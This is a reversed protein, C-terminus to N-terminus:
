DGMKPGKSQTSQFTAARKNSYGYPMFGFSLVGCKDYGSNTREMKFFGNEGWDPGWSNKLLWYRKNTEADYGEGVLLVAHNLNQSDCEGNYIGGSYFVLDENVSIYVVTPARVLLKEAVDFGNATVFSRIYHREGSHVKCEVDIGEYPWNESASIGNNVIYQLALDSFGGNCGESGSECSVLEQESLIHLTSAEQLITSEVAAVAAFAWCSGCQKQDKVPTVVGARRWDIDEFNARDNLNLKALNNGYGKLMSYEVSTADALSMDSLKIVNNVIEHKANIPHLLKSTVDKIDMDSFHNLGKKYIADPNRDHAEIIALNNRFNIFGAHKSVIGAYKKNYSRAFNEFMLFRSLELSADDSIGGLRHIEMLEKAVVDPSLGNLKGAFKGSVLHSELDREFTEVKNSGYLFFALRITILTVVLAAVTYMICKRRSCRCSRVEPNILVVDHGIEDSEIYNDELDPVNPQLSAVKVSRAM